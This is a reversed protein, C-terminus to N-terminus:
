KIFHQLASNHINYIQRLSYNTIGCIEEWTYGNIYKLILINKEIEVEIEMENIEQLIIQCLQNKENVLNSLVSILKNTEIDIKEVKNTDTINKLYEKQQFILLEILNQITKISLNLSKYSQLYKKKQKCMELMSNM